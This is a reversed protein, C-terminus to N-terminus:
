WIGPGKYLKIQPGPVPSNLCKVTRLAIQLPSMQEFDARDVAAQGLALLNNHVDVIRVTQEQRLGEPVKLISRKAVGLSGALPPQNTPTLTVAPLFSLAHEVSYFRQCIEGTKVLNPLMELTLADDICFPGVRIRNLQELHAGCGLHKGIDDALTRIYTGRSCSIALTVSTDHSELLELAHITILRPSRPIIQGKRALHYLRKGSVKIASFMPPIQSITGTFQPLARIIQERDINVDPCSSLIEGTSDQTNTTIGLRITAVYGKEAELLFQSLKTATGVCIPLVGSAQPDLTGVYGTKKGGLLRGIKAAVRYSSIGLPKNINLFGDM